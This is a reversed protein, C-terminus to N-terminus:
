SDHLLARLSWVPRPPDTLHELTSELLFYQVSFGEWQCTSHQPPAARLGGAGSLRM